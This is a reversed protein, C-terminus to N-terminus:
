AHVSALLESIKLYLIIYFYLWFSKNIFVRHGILVMKLDGKTGTGCHMYMSKGKTHM